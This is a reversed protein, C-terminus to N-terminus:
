VGWENGENDSITQRRIKLAEKPYLRGGGSLNITGAIGEGVGVYFQSPPEPGGEEHYSAQLAAYVARDLLTDQVSENLPTKGSSLLEVLRAQKIGILVNFVTDVSVGAFKAADEFNSYPNGSQAYDHNKRDHTEAMRKLLAHFKPNAAM